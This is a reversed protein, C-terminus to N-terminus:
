CSPRKPKHRTTTAALGHQSRVDHQWRPEAWFREGGLLLVLSLVSLLPSERQPFRYNLSERELTKLLDSECCIGDAPICNASGHDASQVHVKPDLCSIVGGWWCLVFNACKYSEVTTVWLCSLFRLFFFDVSTCILDLIILNSLLLSHCVFICKKLSYLIISVFSISVILAKM